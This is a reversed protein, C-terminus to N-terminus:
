KQRLEHYKGSPFEGFREVTRDPWTVQVNTVKDVAGLGFHIRPDNSSCYSYAVHVDRIHPKGGYEVQVQAGIAPSGHRNLVAFGIWGGGKTINRLVYAKADRNVVVMDIRGDNDYDGFAAGRGSDNLLKATGGRPMVETFTGNTLGQWLQDPEAYPDKRSYEGHGIIVAGNAVYIDLSGDNNFDAISTGFGIFPRASSLGLRVTRDEFFGGDNVYVTNLEGEFHTSFLDIDLDADIDIAVIGMGAEVIGAANYAFGRSVAEDRFTGNKQNIWLANPSRDNAVAIDIWGDQNFDSCTVGLSNGYNTTIGADFSADTFTGNGDNRYLLDPQPANYNVPSCYDNGGSPTACAIETAKSWNLYNTVYLDLDGDLDYDVFAASASFGPHSVNANATVNTFTGNGNNRYLTNPGVNTIYLDTWGDNDYDGTTCGMGFGLDGVGASDTVDVFTGDGKNRYLKKPLPVPPDFNRAGQVLYVDLHGDKDFDFLCAGGGMIEPMHYNKGDHGSSYTFDIRVKAAVDEFWPPQDAQSDTSTTMKDPAAIRNPKLLVFSGAALLVFGLGLVLFRPLSASRESTTGPRTM